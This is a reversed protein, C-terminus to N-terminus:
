DRWDRYRQVAQRFLARARAQDVSQSEYGTNSLSIVADGVRVQAYYLYTRGGNASPEGDDGRAPYSGQVLVSEDGAGLSSLSKYTQEKDGEPCERVMARYEDLFQEAGDGRYVTITDGAVSLPTYEEGQGPDKYLIEVTGRVGVRHESAFEPADECLKLPESPTNLRQWGGKNADGRTLFARNPISRPVVPSESEGAKSPASPPASSPGSPPASPPPSPNVSPPPTAPGTSQAPPAPPLARDALALQSGVVVGAVVLAAVAAGTLSRTLVLRDSRRRVAAAPDLRAHGADDSLAAFANEIPDNPM